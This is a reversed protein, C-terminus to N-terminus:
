CSGLAAERIPRSDRVDGGWSLSLLLVGLDMPVNVVPEVITRGDLRIPLILPLM